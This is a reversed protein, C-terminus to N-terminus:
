RGQGGLALGLSLNWYMMQKTSISWAILSVGGALALTGLTVILWAVIQSGEGSRSPLAASVPPLTPSSAFQAAATQDFQGFLDQPPEFRRHDSLTATAAKSAVIGPRKLERALNRVRQRAPWDDTRFPVTNKAM